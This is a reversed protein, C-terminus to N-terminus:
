PRDNGLPPSALSRAASAYDFFGRPTRPRKTVATCTHPRPPKAAPASGAGGSSPSRTRARGAGARGAALREPATPHSHFFLHYARPPDLDSLNATALGRHVAQYAEADGTLDLSFRDAAREFSRSLATQLPLTVVELLAGLLLAFPVVGPDGAGSVDLASRLGNWRLAAWLVVVYAATGAMAFLTGWAVHRLRRHALEHAVVLRLEAPQADALLTDWVVVRRTRGLGSVYANHKSTRRSADSVLVDRVPVGARDALSRLSDALEEDALARFRNFVPELVVPAVFGLLLVLLAAGIAAVVPWWVLFVRASAVLALVATATIVSAIGLAKARDALWAGLTQTSFGWSRERRHRWLSIPLLVVAEGMVVLVSLCVAAAWWPLSDFLKEARGFALAAPVALGLALEALRAAYLPRHYRRAREVEEATFPVWEGL